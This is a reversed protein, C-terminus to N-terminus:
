HKSLPDTPPAGAPRDLPEVMVSTPSLVATVRVPTGAPLAAGARANLRTIHGAVVISVDGYGDTPIASVVSGTRGALSASRVTADDGGRRLVQTLWGALGGTVVGAGLGAAVAGATSGTADAVLAGTFGFAGLFAAVSAGSLLDGGIADFVGEFVEGLVLSVLLLLLGVVGIVLFAAM